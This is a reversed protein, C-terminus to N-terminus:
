KGAMKIPRAVRVSILFTRGPPPDAKGPRIRLLIAGRKSALVNLEKGSPKNTTVPEAPLDVVVLISTAM